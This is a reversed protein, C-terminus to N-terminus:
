LWAFDLKLGSSIRRKIDRGNILHGSPRQAPLTEGSQAGPSAGLGLGLGRWSPGLLYKSGM